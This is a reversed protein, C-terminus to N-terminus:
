GIVPHCPHHVFTGPQHKPPQHHPMQLRYRRCSVARTSPLRTWPSYGQMSLPWSEWCGQSPHTRYKCRVSPTDSTKPIWIMAFLLEFGCVSFSTEPPKSFSNLKGSNGMSCSRGLKMQEESFRKWLYGKMLDEYCAGLTPPFIRSNKSQLTGLNFCKGPTLCGRTIIPCWRIRGRNM